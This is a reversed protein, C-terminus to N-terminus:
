ENPSLTLVNTLSLCLFLSLTVHYGEPLCLNLNMCSVSFFSPLCLFFLTSLEFRAKSKTLLCLPFSQSKKEIVVLVNITARVKNNICEFQGCVWSWLIVCPTHPYCYHFGTPNLNSSCLSSTVDPFNSLPTSSFFLQSCAPLYGFM